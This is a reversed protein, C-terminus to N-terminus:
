LAGHEMECHTKADKGLLRALFPLSDQAAKLLPYSPNILWMGSGLMGRGEKKWQLRLHM